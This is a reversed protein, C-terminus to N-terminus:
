RGHGDRHVEIAFVMVMVMMVVVLPTLHTRPTRQTRYKGLEFCSLLIFLSVQPLHFWQSVIMVPCPLHQLCDLSISGNDDFIM